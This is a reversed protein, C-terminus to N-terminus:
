VVVVQSAAADDLFTIQPRAPTRASSTPDPFRCGDHFTNSGTDYGELLLAIIFAKIGYVNATVASADRQHMPAFSTSGQIDSRRECVMESATTVLATRRDRVCARLTRLSLKSIRRGTQTEATAAGDVCPTTMPM